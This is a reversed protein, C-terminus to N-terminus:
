RSKLNNTISTMITRYRNIIYDMSHFQQVYAAALTTMKEKLQNNELVKHIGAAIAAADKIECVIARGDTGLEALGGANTTVVPVQNLFADLVSSGLGEQESSMVFVDMISFFDEVKEYFGMLLYNEQLGLEEIRQQVAPQLVGKGFHLFVFDARYIKLAAIANVMTIPDKHQVFAAMTGIIFTGPVIKKENLVQIARERNLPQPVVISSVVEIDTRGSFDTVIKQIAKSIALIKDTARYKLRTFFGKPVFDVRRSYVVPRRHFLKTFVAYTLIQSTQAHLLSFRNGKGILFWCIKWVSTFGYTIFGAEVSKNYLPNGERCLLHVEYGAERLGIMNYLTQREGGRWGKEFNLELIVM